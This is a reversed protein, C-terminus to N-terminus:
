SRGPYMLVQGCYMEARSLSGRYKEFDCFSISIPRKNLETPKKTKNLQLFFPLVISINRPRLTHYKSKGEREGTNTTLDLHSDRVQLLGPPPDGEKSL